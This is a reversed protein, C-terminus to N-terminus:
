LSCVTKKFNFTNISLIFSFEIQALSINVHVFGLVVHSEQHCVSYDPSLYSMSISITVHNMGFKSAIKKSLGSSVSDMYHQVGHSNLNISFLVLLLPNTIKNLFSFAVM